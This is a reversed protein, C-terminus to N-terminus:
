VQEISFESVTISNGANSANWKYSLLFNLNTIAAASAETIVAAATTTGTVGSPFIGNIGKFGDLKGTTVDWILTVEGYFKGSVAGFNGSTGTTTTLLATDSGPTASTGLYLVVQLDNSAVGSTFVGSYRVKFPRASDFTTASFFPNDTGLGPGYVQPSLHIISANADYPM